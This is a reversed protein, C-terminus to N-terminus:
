NVRTAEAADAVSSAPATAEAIVREIRDLIRAAVASKSQLPVAENGERSILMVANTSGDFGVGPQSVDNAVILDIGKRELKERAHALMEHTEAAFGVLVPRGTSQRAPLRGLDALIDRTRTLTLTLPGERKAIKQPDPSEITYDAVAAAMIIVDAQDARAIVAQHMEAASRVQVLSDTPPPDVKAPGSVLTVRAGRRAAEAAVAYGMRGSSRNGIFRV